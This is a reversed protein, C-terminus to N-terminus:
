FNQLGDVLVVVYLVDEGVGRSLSGAGHEYIQVFKKIDLRGVDWYKM